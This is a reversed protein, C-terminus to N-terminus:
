RTKQAQQARMKAHVYAGHPIYLMDAVKRMLHNEHAGLVGDAYAIRWMHEIIQIKQEMEFNENIRSTFAFHDTASRATQAALEMLREIEDASLAFKDRLAAIAAEREATGVEPDANMVEVLLVATSLQLLHQVDQPSTGPAVPLLSDFLEKLTKIM